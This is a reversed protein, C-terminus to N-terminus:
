RLAGGARLLQMANRAHAATVCLSCVRLCPLSACGQKMRLPPMAYTTLLRQAQDCVVELADTVANEARPWARAHPCHARVRSVRSRTHCRAGLGMRHRQSTVHAALALLTGNCAACAVSHPVSAPLKAAVLRPAALALLLCWALLPCRAARRM